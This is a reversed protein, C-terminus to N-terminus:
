RDHGHAFGFIHKWGQVMKLWGYTRDVQKVFRRTEAYEIDELELAPKGKRWQQTIGPGANWASLVAIDDDPFLRQLKFLYYVGLHINIEPTKLDDEKLHIAGIEPALELATSPLLQMLGVAGRQSQAWPEFRSEVKIIAMVWLPDFKYEAAYRNILPKHVVPRFWVWATGSYVFFGLLVFIIFSIWLARRSNPEPTRWDNRPFISM